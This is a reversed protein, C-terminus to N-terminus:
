VLSLDFPTGHWFDVGDPLFLLINIDNQRMNIFCVAMKDIQHHGMVIGGRWLAM